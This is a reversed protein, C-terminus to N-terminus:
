YIGISANNVLSDLRGLDHMAARVAGSATEEERVDGAIVVCRRGAATAEEALSHLRDERRAVVVLNAGEALFARAVALGIGSSAGTILAVQGSLREASAEAMATM